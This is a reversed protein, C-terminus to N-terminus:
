LIYEELAPFEKTGTTTEESWDITKTPEIDEFKVEEKHKEM